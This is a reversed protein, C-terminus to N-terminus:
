KNVDPVSSRPRDPDKLEDFLHGNAEEKGMACAFAGLAIVCSGLRIYPVVGEVGARPLEPNWARWFRAQSNGHPSNVRCGAPLGRSCEPAPLQGSEQAFSGM